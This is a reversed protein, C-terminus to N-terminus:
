IDLRSLKYKDIVAEAGRIGHCLYLKSFAYRNDYMMITEDFREGDAVLKIIIGSYDEDKQAEEIQNIFEAWASSLEEFEIEEIGSEPDLDIQVKYTTM